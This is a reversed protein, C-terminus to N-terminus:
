SPWSKKFHELNLRSKLFAFFFQSFTKPKKSLQMHIQQKFNDRNLPSYKDDLTFTNVFLWSMEMTGQTSKSLKITDRYDIEQKWDKFAEM